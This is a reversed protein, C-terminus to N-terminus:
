IEDYKIGVWVTNLAKACKNLKEYTEYPVNPWLEVVKLYQSGDEADAVSVMIGCKDPRMDEDLIGQSWACQYNRCVSPRENYITCKNDVLFYCPRRGQALNGHVNVALIGQCCGTCDGCPRFETPTNM